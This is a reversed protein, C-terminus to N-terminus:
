ADDDLPILFVWPATKEIVAVMEQLEEPTAEEGLNGPGYKPKPNSSKTM